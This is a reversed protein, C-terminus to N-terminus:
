LLATRVLAPIPIRMQRPEIVYVQQLAEILKPGIGHTGRVDEWTRFVGGEMQARHELIADIRKDAINPVKGPGTLM